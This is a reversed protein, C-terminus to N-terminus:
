DIKGTTQLQLGIDASQKILIIEGVFTTSIKIHTLIGYPVPFQLVAPSIWKQGINAQCGCFIFIMIIQIVGQFQGKGSLLVLGKKLAIFNQHILSQGRSHPIKGIAEFVYRLQFVLMDHREVPIDVM